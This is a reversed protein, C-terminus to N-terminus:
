APVLAGISKLGEVNVVFSWGEDILVPQHRNFHNNCFLLKLNDQIALHYAQSGCRDCRDEFTFEHM